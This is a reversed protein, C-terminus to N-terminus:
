DTSAVDRQIRRWLANRDLGDSARAHADDRLQVLVADLSHVLQAESTLFDQMERLADTDDSGDSVAPM